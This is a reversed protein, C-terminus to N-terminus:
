RDGGWCRVTGERPESIDLTKVGDTVVGNETGRSIHGVKLVDSRQQIVEHDLLKSLVILMGKPWGLDMFIQGLHHVSSSGFHVRQPIGQKDAPIFVSFPLPNRNGLECRVLEDGM